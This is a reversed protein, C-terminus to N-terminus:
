RWLLVSNQIWLGGNNCIFQFARSAMFTSNRRKNSASAARAQQQLGRIVFDM